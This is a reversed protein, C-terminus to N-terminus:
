LKMLEDRLAVATQYRDNVSPACAKNIVEMLLMLERADTRAGLATPLGPYRNPSCGTAAHYLVKGLAYIDGLTHGPGEPPIYDPTGIFTGSRDVQCVLGIDALKPSNHVFIINSPKVDRHVLKRAHLAALADALSIGIRICEPVPLWQSEFVFRGLTKPIYDDPNINSGSVLDDAPDMVYYFHGVRDDKGVHLISVWGPHSRSIEAFNKVGEFEREFPRANSFNKRHVVKIARYGSTLSRALWVEGFSGEGVNKLLQYDPIILEQASGAYVHPLPVLHPPPPRSVPLAKNEELTPLESPISENKRILARTYLLASSAWALPIQVGAVLVWDFWTRRLWIFSISLVSFALMSLLAYPLSSFPAFRSFMFGFIAGACLVILLETLPAVRTLWENRILNLFM